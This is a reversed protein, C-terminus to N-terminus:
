RSEGDGAIWRADQAAQAIAAHARLVHPEAQQCHSLLAVDVLPAARLPVYALGSPLGHTASEGLIAMATGDAVVGFGPDFPATPAVLRPEFGAARCAGVILDFHRPNISREHLVLREDRLDGLEIAPMASWPHDARLLVGLRERRVVACSLAAHGLPCRLLALDLIRGAVADALEASPLVAADITVGPLAERAARILSPATEYATSPSYGITLRGRTGAALERAAVWLADADRLLVGGRECLFSGAGTLQVEHTSRELLRVGLERELLGVQRSVASQAVLLREAARSFSRSEAVAVFYRLRRLDLM